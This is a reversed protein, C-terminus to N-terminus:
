KRRTLAMEVEGLIELARAPSGKKALARFRMEAEGQSLGANSFDTVLKTVSTGRQRALRRLRAHREEPLRITMTSMDDM